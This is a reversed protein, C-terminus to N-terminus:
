YGKQRLLEGCLYLSGCVVLAGNEGIQSRVWDIAPSLESFARSKTGSEVLTESLIKSDLSRPSPVPVAAACEAAPTLAQLIGDTDKDACAGIVLGVPRNLEKLFTALATAGHPNHAGDAILLPHEELVQLRAPLSARALGTRIDEESVAYGHRRLVSIVTLATAANAFQHKGLLRLRYEKGGLAFCPHLPDPSHDQLTSLSPQLLTAQRQAAAEYLVPLVEDPQQPSVVVPRNRKIIGAKERAIEALSAGLVACHDLGVPAIVATELTEPPIVNTADCRGGLGTEWCVLECEAAEFVCLAAATIADFQAFRMGKQELETVIPELRLVARELLENSVPEGNIRIRENFRVLYPSTYLGVRLGAAQAIEAIMTAVSGKGNTGAVHVFRLNQEPHGLGETLMRIPELSPKHAFPSFREFYTADM